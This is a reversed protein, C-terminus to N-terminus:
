GHTRGVCQPGVHQPGVQEDACYKGWVTTPDSYTGDPGGVSGTRDCQDGSSNPDYDYRYAPHGLVWLETCLYLPHGPAVDFTVGTPPLVAAGTGSGSAQAVVPGAHYDPADTQVSCVLTAPAPLGGVTVVVPGGTLRGTYHVQQDPPATQTSYDLGCTLGAYSAEPGEAAHVPTACLAALCCLVAPLANRRM